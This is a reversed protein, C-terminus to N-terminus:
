VSLTATIQIKLSRFMCESLLLDITVAKHNGITRRFHAWYGEITNTHVVFQRRGHRGPGCGLFTEVWLKDGKKPHRKESHYFPHVKKLYLFSKDKDALVITTPHPLHSDILPRITETKHDKSKDLAVWGTDRGICGIIWVKPGTRTSSETTTTTTTPERKHQLCRLHCEDVEVIEDAPFFIPHKEMYQDICDRLVSYWKSVTNRHVGCTTAAQSAKVKALFSHTLRILTTLPLDSHSFVSGHRVGWNGHCVKCYLRIGESYARDNHNTLRHKVGCKPCHRDFRHIVGATILDELLHRPSQVTDLRRADPLPPINEKDEVDTYIIPPTSTTPKPTSYWAGM